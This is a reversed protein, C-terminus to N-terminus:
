ADAHARWEAVPLDALSSIVRHARLGEEAANFTATDSVGTTVGVAYAGAVRAMAIELDPDDGVVAFENQALGTLKASMEMGLTSPKGLVTPSQGTVKEVMASIAGSVGLLRGKSSAFFPAASGTFPIAGAWVAECLAELESLGFNRTWGILIAEVNERGSVPDVLDFGAEEMPVRTGADGLVMVRNFGQEKLYLAAVSAPTVVHGADIELGADALLPYYHAPPFFTGNTYAVVQINAKRCASLADVAGPLATYTGKTKDMMALTGDIDFIAGRIPKAHTM